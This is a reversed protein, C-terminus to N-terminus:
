RGDEEDLIRWKVHKRDEEGPKWTHRIAKYFAYAVVLCAVSVLAWDLAAPEGTSQAGCWASAMAERLTSM